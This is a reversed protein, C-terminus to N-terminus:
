EEKCTTSDGYRIAFTLLDPTADFIGAARMKFSNAEFHAQPPSRVPLEIRNPEAVEYYLFRSVVSRNIIKQVRICSARTSVRNWCESNSQYRLSETPPNSLWSKEEEFWDRGKSGRRCAEKAINPTRKLFWTNEEAICIVMHPGKEKQMASDPMRMRWDWNRFFFRTVLCRRNRWRHFCGVRWTRSM